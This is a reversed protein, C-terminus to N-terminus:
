PSATTTTTPCTIYAANINIYGRWYTFDGYGSLSFEGNPGCSGSETAGAPYFKWVTTFEAGTMTKKACVPFYSGNRSQFMLCIGVGGAKGCWTFKVGSGFETYCGRTLTFTTGNAPWPNPTLTTGAGGVYSSSVVTGTFCRPLDPCWGCCIHAPNFFPGDIAFDNFCEFPYIYYTSM